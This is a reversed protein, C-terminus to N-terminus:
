YGGDQREHNTANKMIFCNYLTEADYGLYLTLNIIFHWLDAIETDLNDKDIPKPNKKWDKWAQQEELIEGLEAIIGTVTMPIKDPLMAPLDTGHLRKQLVQQLEFMHDLKM